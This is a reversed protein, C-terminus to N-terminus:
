TPFLGSFLACSFCPFLLQIYINGTYIGGFGGYLEASRCHLLAKKKNSKDDKKMTNRREWRKMVEMCTGPKSNQTKTSVCSLPFLM